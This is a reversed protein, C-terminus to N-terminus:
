RFVHLATSTSALRALLPLWGIVYRRWPEGTWCRSFCYGCLMQWFGTSIVSLPLLASKCMSEAVALPLCASLAM